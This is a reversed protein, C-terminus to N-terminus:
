QELQANTYIKQILEENIILGSYGAKKKAIQVYKSADSWRGQEMRLTLLGLYIRFDQPQITLAKLLLDEAQDYEQVATYLKALYLLPKIGDPRRQVLTNLEEEMQHFYGIGMEKPIVLNELIYPTITVIEPADIQSKTYVAAWDDLYVLHWNTNADLIDTYPLPTMQAQLDYYIVATSFTYEQTLANWTQVDVGANVARVIYDYGYDLNRGDLFVSHGRFLLEGGANYNNFVPGTLPHRQLFESAGRMPEFVGFGHLNDNRNIDYSRIHVFFGVCVLIFFSLLPFVITNKQLRSLFANWRIAYKLQYVTLSLAALIFLAEHRKATISLYGIGFLILLSFLINRRGAWLALLAVSWFLATHKIYEIFPVPQWEAILAISTDTHLSWLYSLTHIGSPTVFLAVIMALLCLSLPRIDMRNGRLRSVYLAGFVAIGVIAAAGHLNSWVVILVPVLLLIRRRLVRPAEAYTICLCLLLTFMAFTYLQPRDTIAPRALALAIVALVSNIWINKKHLLLPVGFAVLMLLIRLITTGIWGGSDYAFSMIVQALWEHVALYPEGIRTYAFPDMSIWGSERLLQGAKIHWWFDTNGVKFSLLYLAFTFSLALFVYRISRQMVQISGRNTVFM